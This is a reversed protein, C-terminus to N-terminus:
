YTFNLYSAAFYVILIIVSPIAYSWTSASQKRYLSFLALLSMILVGVAIIMNAGSVDLMIPGKTYVPDSLALIIMNFINSGLIAGVAMNVNNLRLAIFVSIAEPLSTAAAILFSGIFSSGIGTIIAIQDGTISLATGAALIVLAAIIFRVIAAKPSLSASPNDPEEESEVIAEAEPDLSPLKNIVVMGIIYTVAILLADLGVGFIQTDLRLLLAMVVLVTLLIGLLATYINNRSARNLIQRRRLLFDFGALIFLNFLNSGIMNGVAIDANGIAAASFSTSVEPLSTAGALLLTGVMMGGMATKSSIVDAYQSLKISAFVTLAAALIFIVFVM